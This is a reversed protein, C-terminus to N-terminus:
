ASPQDASLSVRFREPHLACGSRNQQQVLKPMFDHADFLIDGFNNMPVCSSSFDVTYEGKFFCISELV